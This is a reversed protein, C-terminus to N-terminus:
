KTVTPYFKNSQVLFTDTKVNSSVDCMRADMLGCWFLTAATQEDCVPPNYIDAGHVRIMKQKM